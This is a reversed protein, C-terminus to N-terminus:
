SRIDGLKGIRERRGVVRYGCNAQLVLCQFNEAITAAQLTWVGHTDSSEILADLLARGAGCGRRQTSVYIGFEPLASKPCCGFLM